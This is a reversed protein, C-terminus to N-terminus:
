YSQECSGHIKQSAIRKGERVKKSSPKYGIEKVIVALAVKESVASDVAVLNMIMDAIHSSSLNIHDQSIVLNM